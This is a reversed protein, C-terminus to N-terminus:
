VRRDARVLSLSLFMLCFLIGLARHFFYFYYFARSFDVILDEWGRARALPLSLLLLCFLIGLARRCNLVHLWSLFFCAVRGSIFM